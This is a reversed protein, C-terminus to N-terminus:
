FLKKCILNGMLIDPTREGPKIEGGAIFIKNEWKLATTTVPAYPMVGINSWKGTVTNYLLVSKNFGPHNHIINMKRQILVQREDDNSARTISLNLHELQSFFTGDDSGSIIIFKKGFPVASAASIHIVKHDNNINNLKKWNNSSPIFCFVSSFLNTIGSDSKARGGIVYICDEKGNSQTVSVTHSLANPLSPLIQWQPNEEDLDISMFNALANKENEGGVIYIKNGICTASLNTVPAPLSPLSKFAIKQNKKDWKFIFVEKSLGKANEGGICVIGSDTSVCASYAIPQLLKTNITKNWKFSHNKLQLVFIDDYYEKKGGEWPKADPFNSGGAVMMVNENVGIVAGAIGLNDQSINKNPLEEIIRWKITSIMKKQAHTTGIFIFTILFISLCSNFKTMRM